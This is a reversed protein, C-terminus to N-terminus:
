IEPMHDATLPIAYASVVGPSVSALYEAQAASRKPFPLVGFDMASDAFFRLLVGCSVGCFAGGGELFAACTDEAAGVSGPVHRHPDTLLPRLEEWIVTMETSLRDPLVFGGSADKESLRGGCAAVHAWNADNESIYAAADEGNPSFVGDGDKDSWCNEGIEFMKDVTWEGATVLEYPDGCGNERLIERNFLVIWAAREDATGADGAACFLKGRIELGESFNPDWWSKELDLAEVANLDALLGAVALSHISLVSGYIFDCCYIGAILSDKVAAAVNNGAREERIRCHFREELLLNRRYVADSVRDGNKSAAYVENTNLDAYESDRVLFVFEHGGLDKPSEAWPRCFEEEREPPRPESSAGCAALVLPAILLICLFFVITQKM